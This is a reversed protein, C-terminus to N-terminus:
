DLQALFSLSLMYREKVSGAQYMHVHLQSLSPYLFTKSVPCQQKAGPIIARITRALTPFGDKNRKDM